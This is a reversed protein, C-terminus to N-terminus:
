SHHFRRRALCALGAGVLLVTAPEPTPAVPPESLQDGFVRFAGNPGARTWDTDVRRIAAPLLRSDTESGMWGAAQEAGSVSAVFWYQLGGILTPHTSSSVSLVSGGDELSSTATVLLTELVTTGPLHRTPDDGVLTLMVDVPRPDGAPLLTSMALDLSTFAFTGGPLTFSVGVQQGPSVDGESLPFGPGLVPIAAPRFSDGPGFSSFLAIPDAFALSPTCLVLLTALFAFRRGM